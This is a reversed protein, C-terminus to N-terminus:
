VRAAIRLMFDSVAERELKNLDPILVNSGSRYILRRRVLSICADELAVRSDPKDKLAEWIETMTFTNRGARAFARIADLCDVQRAVKLADIMM